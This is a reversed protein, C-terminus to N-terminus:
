SFEPDEGATSGICRQWQLLGMSDLKVVWVDSAGHNGSVDGDNSFTSATFLFGYDNTRVIRHPIEDDSGGYCQQWLINGTADICVLWVDSGGKFNCNVDGSDKTAYCLLVIKGDGGEAIYNIGEYGSSGFTKNFSLTPQSFLNNGASLLISLPILLFVKKM